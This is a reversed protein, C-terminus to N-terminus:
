VEVEIAKNDVLVSAVGVGMAHLGKGRRLLLARGEFTIDGVSVPGCDAECLVFTDDVGDGVIRFATTNADSALRVVNPFSTIGPGQPWMVADLRAPLEAERELTVDWVPFEGLMGWWGVAPSTEGMQKRASIGQADVPIIALNGQGSERTMVGQASVEVEGARLPSKSDGTGVPAIHFLQELRHRGEGRILDCLIWYESKVYFIARRHTLSHDVADGEGRGPFPDPAFGEGYESSVFDFNRESVWENQGLTKLKAEPLFRRAQGMGDILVVNHARSSKFYHTMETWAYSYINPDGLLQRGNAYLIFNLKDEHQHSAGWPAGDFHLYQADPGWKNRMVYLGSDSWAHSTHDPAEGTEGHSGGWELDSRDFADAAAQLLFAPDTPNPNCDNFTPLIHNPMVAYLYMEHAREILRVFADPLAVKRAQATKVVAFMSSTPFVHYLHTLEFQFGDAYYAFSNIWKLRRMAIRLYADAHKLEPSFLAAVALGAAEVQYWNNAGGCYALAYRIHDLRSRALMAHTAEDFADTQGLVAMAAPWMNAQRNGLELTRWPGQRQWHNPMPAGNYFSWLIRAAHVAYKEKGTQEYATVLNRIFPQAGLSVTSEIDDFLRLHWDIEAGFQHRVLMHARFTFLNSCCGDADELDAQMLFDPSVADKMWPRDRLVRGLRDAAIPHAMHHAYDAESVGLRESRGHDLLRGWMRERLTLLDALIPMAAEDAMEGVVRVCTALLEDGLEAKRSHAMSALRACGTVRWLEAESHRGECLYGCLALATGNLLLGDAGGPGIRRDYGPTNFTLLYDAMRFLPEGPSGGAMLMRLASKASGILSWTSNADEPLIEPPHDTPIDGAYPELAKLLARM